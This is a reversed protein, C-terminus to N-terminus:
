YFQFFFFKLSLRSHPFKYFVLLAKLKSLLIIGINIEYNQYIYMTIYSTLM